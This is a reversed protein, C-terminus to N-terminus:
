EVQLPNEYINGIVESKYGEFEDTEDYISYTGHENKLGWQLNEFLVVGSMWGCPKASYNARFEVVDGEYIEQGNSDKLGTYQMLVVGAATNVTGDPDFSACMQIDDVMKNVFTYWARFKIERM